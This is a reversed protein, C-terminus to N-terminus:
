PAFGLLSAENIVPIPNGRLCGPGYPFENNMHYHYMYKIKGDWDIWGFHGHCVDLDANTLLKGRDGRPGYIGFGDLAYGFLPSHAAANGQNPFCRWSWGHYHYQGDYPHGFCEDTPLGAIPDVFIHEDWDIPAINAHWVVGTQTAVGSILQNICNPRANYVPSRPVTIDLSYEAIPIEDSWTYPTSAPAAHYYDYARDKDTYNLAETGGFVPFRGTDHTPLGNGIFRRTYWGLVTRFSHTNWTISGQVFPIESVVVNLGHVWPNTAQTYVVPANGNLINVPLICLFQENKHARNTVTGTPVTKFVTPGGVSLNQAQDHALASQVGPVVSAIVCLSLVLSRSLSTIMKGLM